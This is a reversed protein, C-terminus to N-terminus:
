LGMEKVLRKCNAISPTAIIKSKLYCKMGLAFNDLAGGIDQAEGNFDHITMMYIEDTDMNIVNAYECMGDINDALSIPFYKKGFEFKHLRNIVNLIEVGTDRSFQPVLTSFPIVYKSKNVEENLEFYSQTDKLLEKYYKNTVPKLLDVKEAFRGMLDKHETLSKGQLNERVFKLFRIGTYDFYGDWQGYQSLRIKKDKIIITLNRTGM